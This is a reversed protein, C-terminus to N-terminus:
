FYYTKNWASVVDDVGIIKDPGDEETSGFTRGIGSSLELYLEFEIVEGEFRGCNSELSRNVVGINVFLSLDALVHDFSTCFPSGCLLQHCHHFFYLWHQHSRALVVGEISVWGLQKLGVFCLPEFNGLLVCSLMSFSEPYGSLIRIWMFLDISEWVISGKQQLLYYYKFHAYRCWSDVFLELIKLALVEIEIFSSGRRFSLQAEISHWRQHVQFMEMGLLSIWWRVWERLNGM